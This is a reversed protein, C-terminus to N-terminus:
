RDLSARVKRLKFEKEDDVDDPDAPVKIKELKCKVFDTALNKIETTRTPNTLPVETEAIETVDTEQEQEQEPQKGSCAAFSMVM